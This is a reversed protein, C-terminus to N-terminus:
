PATLLKLRFGIELAVMRAIPRARLFHQLLETFWAYVLYTEYDSM